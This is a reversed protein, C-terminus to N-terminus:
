KDLLASPSEDVTVADGENKDFMALYAERSGFIDEATCGVTITHTSYSHWESEYMMEEYQALRATLDPSESSRHSIMLDPGMGSGFHLENLTLQNVPNNLILSVTLTLFLCILLKISM